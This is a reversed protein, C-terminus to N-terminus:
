NHGICFYSSMADDFSHGCFRFLLIYIADDSVEAVKLDSINTAWECFITYRASPVPTLPYNVVKEGNHGVRGGEEDVM